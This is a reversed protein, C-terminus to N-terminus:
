KTPVGTGSEDNDCQQIEIKQTMQNKKKFKLVRLKLQKNTDEIIGLM